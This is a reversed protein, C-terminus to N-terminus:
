KFKSQPVTKLESPMSAVYSALAKLEAPKFQQVQAVMVPNARGVNPNKETKYAKLAVYLYDGHQGALKPYSADIPKNLTEGHCATCGGKQLLAAVEAPPPAAAAANETKGGDQEYYAALDAIDQDSLSAAIGRRFM